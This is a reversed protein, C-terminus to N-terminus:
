PSLFAAAIEQLDQSPVSDLEQSLINRYKNYQRAAEDRNGEALHARILARHASERLPEASIVLLAADVAEAHRGAQVLRNAIAELAHLCLQRLRERELILWDDYWDPLLEGRFRTTNLDAELCEANPNVLRRAADIVAPVDALVTPALRLQGGDAHVLEFTQRRLRWLASRLNGLARNEPLDPWLQRAAYHRPVPRSELALLAILRQVAPRLVVPESDVTLRFGGLLSVNVNTAVLLVALRGHSFSNTQIHPPRSWYKRHRGIPFGLVVACM